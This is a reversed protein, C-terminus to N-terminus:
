RVCFPVRVDLVFRRGWVCLKEGKVRKVEMLLSTRPNVVRGGSQTIPLCGPKSHNDLSYGSM